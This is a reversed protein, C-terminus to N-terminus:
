VVGDDCRDGAVCGFARQKEAKRERVRGSGAGSKKSEKVIYIGM